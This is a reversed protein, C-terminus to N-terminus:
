VVVLNPNSLSGSAKLVKEVIVEVAFTNKFPLGLHTTIPECDFSEDIIVNIEQRNKAKVKRVDAAKQPALMANIFNLLKIQQVESLQRLSTLIANQLQIRTM